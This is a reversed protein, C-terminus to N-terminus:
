RAGKVDSDRVAALKLERDMNYRRSKRIDLQVNDAALTHEKIRSREDEASLRVTRYRM